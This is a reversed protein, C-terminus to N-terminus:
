WWDSLAMWCWGSNGSNSRLSLFSMWAFRVLKICSNLKQGVVEGLFSPPTNSNLVYVRCGPLRRSHSCWQRLPRSALLSTMSPTPAQLSIIHATLPQHSNASQSHQLTQGSQRMSRLGDGRATGRDQPACPWVHASSSHTQTLKPQRM